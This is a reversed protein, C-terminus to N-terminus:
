VHVRLFLRGKEKKKLNQRRQHTFHSQTWLNELKKKKGKKEALDIDFEKSTIPYYYM